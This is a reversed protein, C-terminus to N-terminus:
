RNDPAMGRSKLSPIIVANPRPQSTTKGSTYDLTAKELLIKETPMCFLWESNKNILPLNHPTSANEFLSMDTEIAQLYNPKIAVGGQNEEIFALSLDVATYSAIHTKGQPTNQYFDVTDKRMEINIDTPFCVAHVVEKPNQEGNAEEVRTTRFFLVNNLTPYRPYNFYCAGKPHAQEDKALNENLQPHPDTIKFTVRGKQVIVNYRDNKIAQAPLHLAGETDFYALHLHDVTIPDDPTTDAIPTPTTSGSSKFFPIRSLAM